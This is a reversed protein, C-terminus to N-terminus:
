FQGLSWLLIAVFVFPMFLWALYLVIGALLTFVLAVIGMAIVCIRVLIGFVRIMTNFVFTDVLSKNINYKDHIKM